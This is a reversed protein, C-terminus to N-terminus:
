CHAINYAFGLENKLLMLGFIVNLVRVIMEDFLQYAQSFFGSWVGVPLKAIIANPWM